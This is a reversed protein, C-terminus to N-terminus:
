SRARPCEVAAPLSAVTTSPSVLASAARIYRPRNAGSAGIDYTNDASAFFNGSTEISWRNGVGDQGFGIAGGAQLHVAGGGVNILTQHDM